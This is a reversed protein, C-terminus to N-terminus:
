ADRARLSTALDVSITIDKLIFLLPKRFGYM